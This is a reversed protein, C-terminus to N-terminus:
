LFIEVEKLNYEKLLEYKIQSLIPRIQRSRVHSIFSKACEYKESLDELTVDKDLMYSFFIDLQQPNMKDRCKVLIKSSLEKNFVQYEILEKKDKITDHYSKAEDGNNNSNHIDDLSFRREQYYINVEKNISAIINSHRGDIRDMEAKNKFEVPISKMHAFSIIDTLDSDLLRLEKNITIKAINNSEVLAKKIENRDVVDKNENYEDIVHKKQQGENSIKLFTTHVLTWFFTKFSAREKDYRPLKEVVDIIALQYIDEEDIIPNKYILHSRRKIDNKLHHAWSKKNVKVQKGKKQAYVFERFFLVDFIQERYDLNNTYESVLDEDTMFYLQAINM